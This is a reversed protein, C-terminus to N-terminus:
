ILFPLPSLSISRVLRGRRRRFLAFVYISNVAKEDIGNVLTKGVTAQLLGFYCSMNFSM